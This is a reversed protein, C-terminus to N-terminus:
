GNNSYSSVDTVTTVVPTTTFGHPTYFSVSLNPFVTMFFCDRKLGQPNWSTLAGKLVTPVHLHCLQSCNVGTAKVGWFINKTNPRLRCWPWQAAPLIVDISLTWHCWRSDFGRGEPKYRLTEVQQAVAHVLFFPMASCDRHTQEGKNRQRLFINFMRFCSTACIIGLNEGFHKYYQDEARWPATCPIQVV